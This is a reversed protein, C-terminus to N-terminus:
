HPNIAHLPIELGHSFLHLCPPLGLYRIYGGLDDDVLGEDLAFQIHWLVQRASNVVQVKM